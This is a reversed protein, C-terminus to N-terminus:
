TWRSHSRARPRMGRALDRVSAFLVYDDREATVADGSVFPEENLTLLTEDEYLYLDSVTVEPRVEANFYSETAVSFGIVPPTMDLTFKRTEAVRNGAEDVATVILEHPSEEEVVVGSEVPDGDLTASISDLNVETATFVLAPPENIYSGEAPAELSIVPVITDRIVGWLVTSLNGCVDEAEVVLENLGEVPLPVGIARFRGGDLFAAGIGSVKM